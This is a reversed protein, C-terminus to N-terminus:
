VRKHFKVLLDNFVKSVLFVGGVITLDFLLHWGTTIFDNNLIFLNNFVLLIIAIIYVIKIAIEVNKIIFLPLLLIGGTLIEIIVITLTSLFSYNISKKELLKDDFNAILDPALHTILLIGLMIVLDVRLFKNLTKDNKATNKLHLYLTLLGAMAAITQINIGHAIDKRMSVMNGPILYNINNLITNQSNNSSNM